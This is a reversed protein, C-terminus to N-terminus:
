ETDEFVDLDALKKTAESPDFSEAGECKADEEPSEELVQLIASKVLNGFLFELIPGDIMDLFSGINITMGFIKPLKVESLDIWREIRDLFEDKLEEALEDNTWSPDGDALALAGKRVWFRFTPEDIKAKIASLSSRLIAVATLRGKIERAAQREEKHEARREQRLARKQQRNLTKREKKSLLAM